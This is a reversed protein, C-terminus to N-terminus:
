FEGIALVEKAHEHIMCLIQEETYEKEELLYDIWVYHREYDEFGLNRLLSALLKHMGALMEKIRCESDHCYENQFEIGAIFAELRHLPHTPRSVYMGPRKCFNMLLRVGSEVNETM